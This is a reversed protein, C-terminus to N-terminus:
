DKASILFQVRRNKSWCEEKFEHCIPKEEGYSIPILRNISIGLYSLQNKIYVSRKEGLAINYNNTGREDCHGALQVNYKPHQKLWEANKILTKKAITDINYQDYDFFIDDLKETLVYRLTSDVKKGNNLNSKEFPNTKKDFKPKPNQKINNDRM